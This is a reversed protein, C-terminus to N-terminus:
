MGLISEPSGSDRSTRLLVKDVPEKTIECLVNRVCIARAEPLLGSEPTLLHTLIHTVYLLSPFRGARLVHRFRGCISPGKRKQNFFNTHAELSLFRLPRKGASIVTVRLRVKVTILADLRIALQQCLAKNRAAASPDPAKWQLAARANFNIDHIM